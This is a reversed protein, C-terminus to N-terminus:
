ALLFEQLNSSSESLSSSNATATTASPPPSLLSALPLDAVIGFFADQRAITRTDPTGLLLFPPGTKKDTVTVLV